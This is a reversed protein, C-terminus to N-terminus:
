RKRRDRLRELLRRNFEDEVRKLKIIKKSPIVGKLDRILKVKAQHMKEEAIILDELLADAEKEGINPNNRLKKKIARLDRTRINEITEEFENYIPWFKQAEDTSLDLQTTIFATKQAKIREKFKGDRPPQAFILASLLLTIILLTKKM